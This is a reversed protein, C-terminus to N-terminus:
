NCLKFSIIYFLYKFLYQRSAHLSDFTQQLHQHAKLAWPTIHAKFVFLFSIVPLVLTYQAFIDDVRWPKATNEQEPRAMKKASRGENRKGNHKYRYAHLTNHTSEMRQLYNKWENQIVDNRAKDDKKWGTLARLYKIKGDSNYELNKECEEMNWLPM